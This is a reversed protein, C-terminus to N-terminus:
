MTANTQVRASRAPPILAATLKRRKVSVLGFTRGHAAFSTPPAIIPTAAIIIGPPLSMSSSDPRGDRLPLAQAAYAAMITASNPM